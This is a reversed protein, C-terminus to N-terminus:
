TRSAIGFSRMLMAEDPDGASFVRGTASNIFTVRAPSFLMPDISYFDGHERMLEHFLRGHEKSASSPVRDLVAEIASDETRVWLSVSAGYLVADNTRGIAVLTDPSGPAIPCSGSGSIICELDFGIEMLKHLATEVSRAAIQTAGALSGTSAAILTLASAPIGCRSAITDAAESPPLEAAELLLVSRDARTRMGYSEFLPEVGSLARAPGSGMAFFKGSKIQWGAYQSGMCAVLPLDVQILVQPLVAPGLRCPAIAARALGGLCAEAFLRGGEHSGPAIVGADILRAGCALSSVELGLSSARGSMEDAIRAANPNIVDLGARM